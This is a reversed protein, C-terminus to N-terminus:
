QKVASGEAAHAKAPDAAKETAQAGVKTEKATTEKKVTKEGKVKKEVAKEGAPTAPTASTAPTAPTATQALAAVPMLSLSVLAAALTRTLRM